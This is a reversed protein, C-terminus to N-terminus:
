DREFTYILDGAQEEGSVAELSLRSNIQFRLRLTNVTDFLGLGYGVYVGGGIYRSIVLSTGEGNDDATVEVEDFGLRRGLDQAILNGGSLMLSNAAQNVTQREGSQLDALSRGLTLYSLAESRPMPPDSYISIEPQQLTGRVLAGATVQDIRRIARIELGPNELPGGTYILRGTEIELQQGFAGFTGDVVRLEGRGWPLMEPQIVTLISGEVSGRLGAAQIQVDPGVTVRVRSSVRAGDDKAPARAGVLVEDPSASVANAGGLETIRAFSIVVDGGITIDRGSFHLRLDPSAAVRADALNVLLVQEGTLTARGEVGDAALDFRGETAFTGDGSRGTAAFSFEGDVLTALAEVQDPQLGLAPMDVAGDQLEFGAELTPAGLTGAVVAHLSAKGELEALEPVLEPLLHLQTLEADIRGDLFPDPANWGVALRADVHDAGDLKLSLVAEAMGEDGAVDLNGHVWSILSKDDEGRQRIEGATLELRGTLKSFRKEGAELEVAGTLVGTALLGGGFRRSLPELDLQSLVASGHWAGTRRWTGELCLLGFTGDMCANGLSVAGSDAGLEAPAQLSWVAREEDALIIETVRGSWHSKALSGELALLFEQALQPRKFDLRARHAQPTGSAEIRLSSGRGPATAFGALEAVVGSEAAGSLDVTADIHLERARYAQWRLREGDAKLEIRPADRRGAIDASANLKGRAGGGLAALAPVELTAALSITSDDLRGRAELFADGVAIRAGRLRYNGVGVHVSANGSVPLSRLEGRLSRLTVELGSAAAPLGRLELSGALRGPWDPLVASPDLGAFDLKFDAAQRGGWAIRGAGSVTGGLLEADLTGIRLGQTDGAAELALVVPPFDPLRADGTAKLRYALREEGTDLAGSASATIAADESRLELSEITLMPASWQLVTDVELPPLGDRRARGSAVINWRGDAREGRLELYPVEIERDAGDLPWGLGAGRITFEAGPPSGPEFWGGASLTAGDQLELKMGRVRAVNDEWGGHAEIGTTGALYAPLEFHGSVKSDGTDGEIRLLAALGDLSGPWLAVESPLPELALDLAWSPAGPLGRVVGEVRAVLPASIDQVVNLEAPPGQVRTHGVLGTDDLVLQWRLDIDWARAPDLSVRADGTIRGRSSQLQVRRLALGQGSAAASLVLDIDAVMPEGDSRLAGDVIAFRDIIMGLPLSVPGAAGRAPGGTGGPARQMLEMHPGSVHLKRIHLTGRLLATPRWDLHVSAIEGRLGPAAIEVRRLTIPGALRGEIEGAALTFPLLPLTRAALFRLGGTTGALWGVAGVLAALLLLVVIRKRVRM